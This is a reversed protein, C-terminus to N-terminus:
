NIKTWTMDSNLIASYLHKNNWLNPEILSLIRGGDSDEYLRYVDGIIPEFKYKSGYIEQTIIFSKQLTEAQEMLEQYKRDLVKEAKMVGKQKFGTLDTAIIPPAGVNSAYPLLSPNDTINDPKENAM